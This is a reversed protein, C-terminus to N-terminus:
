SGGGSRHSAIAARIEALEELMAALSGGQESAPPHAPVPAGDREGAAQARLRSPEQPVNLAGADVLALCVSRAADLVEDFCSPDTNEMPAATRLLSDAASLVNEAADLWVSLQAASRLGVRPLEPDFAECGHALVSSEWYAAVAMPLAEADALITALSLYASGANLHAQAAEQKHGGLSFGRGGAVYLDASLNLYGADRAHTGWWLAVTAATVRAWSAGEVDDLAELRNAAEACARLGTEVSAAHQNLLGFVLGAVGGGLLSEAQGVPDNEWVFLTRSNAFLARGADLPDDTACYVGFMIATLATMQTTRAWFAHQGDSSAGQMLLVFQDRATRLPELGSSWEALMRHAEAYTQAKTEDLPGLPRNRDRRLFYGIFDTITSRAFEAAGDATIKPIGHEYSITDAYVSM